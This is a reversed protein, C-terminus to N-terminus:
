ESPVIIVTSDDVSYDSDDSWSDESWSDDSYSDDPLLDAIWDDEEEEEPWEIDEEHLYYLSYPEQVTKIKSGSSDYIHRYCIGAEGIVVDTYEEDFVESYWYSLEVYSGDVDTGWLEITLSKAETDAYAVIKVPYDRTNKFKFDPNPWSVAADYSIPLYDVRFYHNTRSVTEMQAYMTACYLTSSVQCIGGGIEQVVQGDAYAGAELFGAEATRKGISGNFSFTEGPYIILGNLKSAALAINSIRNANSYTYLTTQSGLRDRYLRSKLEEATIEPRSISMPIRVYEAPAASSWLERAEEIDFICGIVEDVVEFTETYYANQAEIALTAYISDFDPMELKNDINLHEVLRDGKELAACIEQYLVEENIKMQGAGKMFSLQQKDRDLVFNTDGTAANFKKMGEAIKGLIYDENLSLNDAVDMPAALNRLYTLLNAYWNGSHGFRYAAAAANEVSYVAGADVIDLKFSTGAPLKVRLAYSGTEELGAERLAEEAEDVTMGGVFIDDVYVKPLTKDSTSIKYAALSIGFLILVVILASILLSLKIKLSRKRGEPSAKYAEKEAKRAEKEAAKADREAQRELKQQERAAAAEAKLRAKENEQGPSSNETKGTHTGASNKKKFAV